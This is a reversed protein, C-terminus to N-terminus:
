KANGYQELKSNYNAIMENLTKTARQVELQKLSVSIATNVPDSDVPQRNNQRARLNLEEHLLEALKKKQEKIAYRDQALENTYADPIRYAIVPQVISGTTAAPLQAAPPTQLEDTQGLSSSEHTPASVTPSASLLAFPGSPREISWHDLPSIVNATVFNDKGEDIHTLHIVFGLSLIAGALALACVAHFRTLRRLRSLIGPTAQFSQRDIKLRNWLAPSKAFKFALQNASIATPMDRRTKAAQLSITRLLGGVAECLNWIADTEAPFEALARELKALWFRHVTALKQAPSDKSSQISKLSDIVANLSKEGFIKAVMGAAKQERDEKDAQTAPRGLSPNTRSKKTALRKTLIVINRQIGARLSSFTTFPLVAQLSKICKQEDGTARDYALQIKNCADAVEDFLDNRFRSNGGCILDFLAVARAAQAALELAADGGNAPQATARLGIAIQEKLRRSAPAMVLQETQEVDLLGHNTERMFRAHTSAAGEEGAEIYDLALEGNIKGIAMPLAKRFRYVFGNTLRPDNLQRVREELKQWLIEGRVLHEWHGFAEAWYGDLRSRWSEGSRVGAAQNECELATMHWMVALNHLAVVGSTPDSEKLTWIKVATASDGAQLALIAPDLQSQSFLEPWFWFFEDVLRKEPDQLRQLTTRIEDHSPPSSLPFAGPKPTFRIGSEEMQKIRAGHKSIERVTADVALGLARFANKQYLDRTAAELLPKCDAQTQTRADDKPMTYKSDTM